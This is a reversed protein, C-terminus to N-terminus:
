KGVAIRYYKNTIDGKRLFFKYYMGYHFSKLYLEHKGAESHQISLLLHCTCGSVKPHFGEEFGLVTSNRILDSESFFSLLFM